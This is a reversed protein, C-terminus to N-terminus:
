QPSKRSFGFDRGQNAGNLASRVAYRVSDDSNFRPQWGLNKLKEVSLHVVRVDGKWARGGEIGGSFEFVPKVGMEECIIEAIRTVSTRDRNGINFVESQNLGASDREISLIASAIDEGVVYSKSQRGDGLIELISVDRRLKTIFDLIVGHTARRGVVNAPRLVISQFDFTKSYSTVINECALKSSGYISIPLLPCHSEPTPRVTPEGYVTSSSAFYMKKVGSARVAELVNYTAHINNEFQSEPHTIGTRVEPDAAFHFVVDAGEFLKPNVPRRLDLRHFEFRENSIAESIKEKKGTLFNDIGIVEWKAGLLADAFQSGIFGAVGTVVGKLREM